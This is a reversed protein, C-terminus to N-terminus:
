RATVPASHLEIIQYGTAVTPTFGDYRVTWVAADPSSEIDIKQPIHSTAPFNIRVGGIVQASGSDLYINAGSEQDNAETDILRFRLDSTTTDSFAGNAWSSFISNTTGDYNDAGSRAVKIFDGTTGGNMISGGTFLVGIYTTAGSSLTFDSASTFTYVAETTTLSSADMTNFTNLVTPLVVLDLKWATNATSSGLDTTTDAGWSTTYLAKASATGDYANASTGEVTVTNAASGGTYKVGIYDGLVITYSSVYNTFTYAGDTTLLLAPDLSGFTYTCNNGTDLVCALLTGTPSNTRKLGITMSNVSQGILAAGSNIHEGYAFNVNNLVNATITGSAQNVKSATSGTASVEVVSITGTPSGTKAMRLKIQDVSAGAILSSTTKKELALVGTPTASNGGGALSQTTDSDTQVARVTYGANEWFSSTNDDNTLAAVYNFGLQMHLERATQATPTCSGQAGTATHTITNTTGDYRDAAVYEVDGSNGASGGTYYAGIRDGSALTRGTTAGRFTTEVFSTTLTSVDVTGFQYVTACTSDFVAVIMNASAPAGTKKLWLHIENVTSGVLEANATALSEAFFTTGANNLNQTTGGITQLMMVDNKTTSATASSPNTPASVRNVATTISTSTGGIIKYQTFKLNTGATEAIYVNTGDNYVGGGNDQLSYTGLSTYAQTTTPTIGTLASAEQMLPMVVSLVILAFLTYTLSRSSM